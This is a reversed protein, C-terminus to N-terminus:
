AGGGDGGPTVSTVKQGPAVSSTIWTGGGVVAGKGIVTEGGLITANAYITVGDHVTPHRKGDKVLSGDPNRSFSLAGLTVGQYVKVREGIVTTEGIVVGTGHDIFFYPGIDAGPHIDVGTQQHAWESMIRPLLPIGMRYLPHALRHVTTAQVGPYCLIIEETNTAAPDGEFAAQVDTDVLSRVRPLCELYELSLRRSTERLDAPPGGEKRPELHRCAHGQSRCFALTREMTRALQRQLNDLRSGVLLDLDADRPVPEGHYGPFLLAQLKELITVVAQQSPLDKEGLRNIGGLIRYNEVVAATLRRLRQSRDKAMM